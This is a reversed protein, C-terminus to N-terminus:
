RGNNMGDPVAKYTVIRTPTIRAISAYGTTVSYKQIILHILRHNISHM